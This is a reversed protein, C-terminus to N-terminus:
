VVSKRDELEQPLVKHLLRKKVDEFDIARQSFMENEMGQFFIIAKEFALDIAKAM